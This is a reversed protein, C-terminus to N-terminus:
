LSVSSKQFSFKKSQRYFFNERLATTAHSPMLHYLYTVSAVKQGIPQYVHVESVKCSVVWTVIVGIPLRIYAREIPSLTSSRSHGQVWTVRRKLNKAVVTFKRVEDCEACYHYACITRFFVAWHIYIEPLIRNIFM